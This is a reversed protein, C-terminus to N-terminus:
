GESASDLAKRYESEGRLGRLTHKVEGNKFVLVTPLAEIRYKMLVERNADADMKGVKAKGAYDTALKAITPGLAKCPPCWVATFDVLVPETANLVEEQFNADTLEIVNQGAMPNEQNIRRAAIGRVM